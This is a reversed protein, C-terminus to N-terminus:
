VRLEFPFPKIMGLILAKAIAQAKSYVDLKRMSNYLHYQVTKECVGLIIGTEASTKGAATWYLVEEERSTLAPPAKEAQSLAVILPHLYLCILHLEHRYRRVLRAFEDTPHASIFSFLAFEGAPGYVPVTFGRCLGFDHAQFVFDRVEPREEDRGRELDWSVPLRLALVSAVVPDIQAYDGDTYMRVWEEPFTIMVTPPRVWMGHSGLTPNFAQGGVYSFYEFGRACAIEALRQEVEPLSRPMPDLCVDDALLIVKQEREGRWAYM